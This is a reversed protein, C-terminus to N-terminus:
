GKTTRKGSQLDDFFSEVDLFDQGNMALSCFFRLQELPDPEESGKFEEFREKASSKVESSELYLPITFDWEPKYEKFCVITSTQVPNFLAYCYPKQKM